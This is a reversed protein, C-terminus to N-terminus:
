LVRSSCDWVHHVFMEKYLPNKMLRTDELIIKASTNQNEKPNERIEFTHGLYKLDHWARPEGKNCVQPSPDTLGLIMSNKVGESLICFNLMNQNPNPKKSQETPLLICRFGHLLCFIALTLSNGSSIRKWVRFCVFTSM